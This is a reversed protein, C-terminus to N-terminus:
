NLDHRIGGATPCTRSLLHLEPDDKGLLYGVIDGPSLLEIKVENMEVMHHTMEDMQVRPPSM